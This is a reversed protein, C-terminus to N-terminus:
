IKNGMTHKPYTKQQIRDSERRSLWENQMSSRLILSDNSFNEVALSGYGTDPTRDDRQVFKVLKVDDIDSYDYKVSGTLTDLYPRFQDTCYGNFRPDYVNYRDPRTNNNVLMLKTTRSCQCRDVNDNDGVLLGGNSVHTCGAPVSVFRVSQPANNECNEVVVTNDISYPVFPECVRRLTNLATVPLSESFTPPTYRVPLLTKPIQGAVLRQNM